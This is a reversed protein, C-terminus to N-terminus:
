LIFLIVIAIFAGVIAMTIRFTNDAVEFGSIEKSM